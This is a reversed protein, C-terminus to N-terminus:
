TQKKGVEQAGDQPNVPNPETIHLQQLSPGLNWDSVRSAQWSRFEPFDTLRVWCCATFQQSIGEAAQDCTMGSM